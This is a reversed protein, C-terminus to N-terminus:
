GPLKSSKREIGIVSRYRAFSASECRISTEFSCPPPRGFSSRYIHDWTRRLVISSITAQGVRYRKALQVQTSGGAYARRIALVKRATLKANSNDRGVLAPRRGRGKRDMDAINDLQTGLFLHRVNCCLANDCRHLVQLGDPIDGRELEWALRHALANGSGRGGRAIQGYGAGNVSAIWQHCADPGDDRDIKAAFRAALPTIWPNAM